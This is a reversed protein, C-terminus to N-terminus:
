QQHRGDNSDHRAPRLTQNQPRSVGLQMVGQTGGAAALLVLEDAPRARYNLARWLMPLNLGVLLRLGAEEALVRAANCPTAGFVDCLLLAEEHGSGLLAQLEARASDVVAEVSQEPLVDLVRLDAVAEPFAHRAAALWASALPAHAIILLGTM